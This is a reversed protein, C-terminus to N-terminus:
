LLKQVLNIYAKETVFAYLNYVTKLLHVLQYIQGTQSNVGFM